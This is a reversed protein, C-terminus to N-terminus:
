PIPAKLDPTCVYTSNYSAQMFAPDLPTPAAVTVPQGDVTLTGSVQNSKGNYSGTFADLAVNSLAVDFRSGDSVLTMTGSAMTLSGIGAVPTIVSYIGPNGGDNKSEGGIPTVVVSGTGTLTSRSTIVPMGGDPNVPSDYLEFANFVLSTMALTGADRSVPIIPPNVMGTRLGTVTKTGTATVVGSAKTQTGVCNTAVTFGAPLPGIACANVSWTISGPMGASGTMGTPAGLVASSAFGCTNNGNVMSTATAMSKVLLRAAGTGLAQRFSCAGDVPPIVIRPTCAYSSDFTDQVFATDLPESPAMLPYATGDVTITGSISNSATGKTGNQAALMSAGVGLDFKNGATTLRVSANSWSLDSFTAVPTSISCAGTASDIATRPAVKGSLTGSKVLLSSTSDSKVLEFNTFTVTLDFQAPDRTTPVIPKLPNGTRFGAVRKTGTVAVTGGGKTTVMNCDTSLLTDAPLTITCASGITFTAAGDDKGLTGTFTPTGAVAPSSFGCTTNADVLSAITGLTRVSLRAVGGALRPKLDACASTIPMALDPTCTYSAEFAAADFDPDLGSTDGPEVATTQGGWVTINGSLANSVDGNVGTQAFINSDDIAVSTATSPSEAFVESGMAYKINEFPREADRDLM